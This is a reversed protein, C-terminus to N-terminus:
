HWYGTLGEAAYLGLRPGREATRLAGCCAPGGPFDQRFQSVKCVVRCASVSVWLQM